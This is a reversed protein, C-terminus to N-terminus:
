AAHQHRAAISRTLCLIHNGVSFHLNCEPIGATLRRSTNHIVDDISKVLGLVLVLYCPDPLLIIVPGVGLQLGPNCPVIGSINGQQIRVFGAAKHLLVQQNGHVGIRLLIGGKVLIVEDRNEVVLTQVIVFDQICHRSVAGGLDHVIVPFNKFFGSDPGFSQIGPFTQGVRGPDYFFARAARSISPFGHPPFIVQNVHGQAVASGHYILLAPLYKNVRIGPHIGPFSDAFPNMFVSDHSDMVASLAPFVPIVCHAVHELILGAPIGTGGAVLGVQVEMLHPGHFLGAKTLMSRRWHGPDQLQHHNIRALIFGHVASVLEDPIKCVCGM